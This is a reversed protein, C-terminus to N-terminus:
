KKEVKETQKRLRLVLKSKKNAANNKHIVNKKAAKDIRSIALKLMEERTAPDTEALVNKIATKMTSKYFRNNERRTIAKRSEELGSRKRVAMSLYGGIAKDL